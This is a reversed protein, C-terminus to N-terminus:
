DYDNRRSCIIFAAVIVIIEVVFIFIGVGISVTSYHTITNKLDSYCGTLYANDKTPGNLCDQYQTFNINPAAEYNVNKCCGVPINEQPNKSDFKFGTINGNKFDTYSDIGCCEFTSWIANFAKSLADDGNEHYKELSDALGEKLKNEADKGKVLAVAVVAIEAILLIMVIIAYVVLLIKSKCCAGSCGLLAVLVIFVGLIILGLALTSGAAELNFDTKDSQEVFADKIPEFNVKFVIGMILVALGIIMFVLNIAILIIGSCEM